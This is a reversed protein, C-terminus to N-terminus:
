LWVEKKGFIDRVILPTFNDLYYDSRFNAWGNIEWEHGWGAVHLFEHILVNADLKGNELWVHIVIPTIKWSCHGHRRKGKHLIVIPRHDLCFLDTLHDILQNIKKNIYIKENGKTVFQITKHCKKCYKNGFLEHKADCKNCHKCHQKTCHDEHRYIEEVCLSM